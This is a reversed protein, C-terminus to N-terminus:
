NDQRTRKINGKNRKAFEGNNCRVKMRKRLERKCATIRSKHQGSSNEMVDIAQSIEDDTARNLVSIFNGDTAPLSSLSHVTDSM